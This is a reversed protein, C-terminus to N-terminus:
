GIKVQIRRIGWNEDATLNQIGNQPVTNGVFSIVLESASHDFTFTLKYVADRYYPKGMWPEVFGLTRVEAAGSYGEHHGFDYPEPFSQLKLGAAGDETNNFFTSRMATGIGPVRVELIDPGAGLRGDGDWSGIVFLQVEVQVHRHSRLNGLQLSVTQQGFPGIYPRGSPTTSWQIPGFLRGHEMSTWSQLLDGPALSYIKTDCQAHSGGIYPVPKGGPGPALPEIEVPRPAQVGWRLLTAYANARVPYYRIVSDTRQADWHGPDWLLRKLLPVNDPSAFSSLADIGKARVKSDGSTLWSRAIRELWRDKPVRLEGYGPFAQRWRRGVDSEPPEISFFGVAHTNLNRGIASRIYRLAETAERTVSFDERSVIFNQSDLEKVWPPKRSEWPIGVLLRDKVAKWKARESVPRRFTVEKLPPGKLVQDVSVTVIMPEVDSPAATAVPHGVIISKSDLVELDISDVSRIPVMQARSAAGMMALLLLVLTRLANM